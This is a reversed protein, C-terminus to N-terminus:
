LTRLCNECSPEGEGVRAWSSGHWGFIGQHNPIDTEQGCITRKATERVLAHAVGNRTRSVLIYNAM